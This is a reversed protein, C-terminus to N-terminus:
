GRLKALAPALRAGSRATAGPTATTGCFAANTAADWDNWIADTFTNSDRNVMLVAERSGDPSVLAINLHPPTGGNHGLADGCPTTLRFIGLGYDLGDQVPVTTLLERQQAPPLLRGAFLARYFRATDDLTSIVAGATWAWSPNSRTSDFVDPLGYEPPLGISYGHTYPAPIRPDSVPFSTDRMGLPALIRAAVEAPPGYREASPPLHEAADIVLGLLIYNTNAYSWCAGPACVPPQATGLAVLQRPTYDHLPDTLIRRYFAEDTYDALGSTHNLLMRLTIASGNPVVGPLWREVTDDLRLKGQAELQLVVTAVFSKTDSGIRYHDVTRIPEHTALNAVGATAYSTHNGQRSLAMAGPVGDTVLQQVASDLAPPAAVAQAAPVALAVATVIAVLPSRPSRM